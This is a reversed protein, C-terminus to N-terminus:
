MIVVSLIEETECNLGVTWGSLSGGGSTSTNINHSLLGVTWRSKEKREEGRKEKEQRDEETDATKVEYKRVAYWVVLGLDLQKVVDWYKNSCSRFTQLFLYHTSCNFM